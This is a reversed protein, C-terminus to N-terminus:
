PTPHPVRVLHRQLGKPRLPHPRRRRHIAPLRPPHHSPDHSTNKSSIAESPCVWKSLPPTAMPPTAALLSSSRATATRFFRTPVTPSRTKDTPQIYPPTISRQTLRTRFAFSPQSSSSRASM